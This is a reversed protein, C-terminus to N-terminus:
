HDKRARHIYAQMARILVEQLGLSAMPRKVENWLRSRTARLYLRGRKADLQGEHRKLWPMGLIMDYGLQDPLVYLCAGMESHTGIDLRVRVIETLTSPEGVAGKVVRPTITVTPIQHTKVFTESIVGYTLCGTDVMTRASAVQDVITHVIFPPSDLPEQPFSGRSNGLPKRRSDSSLQSSQIEKVTKKKNGRV